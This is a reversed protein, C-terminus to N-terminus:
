SASISHTLVNERKVQTGYQVDSAAIIQMPKPIEEYLSVDGNDAMDINDIFDDKPQSRLTFVKRLKCNACIVISDITKFSQGKFCGEVISKLDLCFNLWIGRKMTALPIKVHFSTVSIDKYSTSLLIRRKQNMSDTITAELSFSSGTAVWLQLVLYSQLLCLSQKTDKPITVKTRTSEGELLLVYSKISKDFERSGGNLSTGLIKCKSSLDKGQINLM